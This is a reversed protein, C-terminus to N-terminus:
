GVEVSSHKFDPSHVIAFSSFLFLSMDIYARRDARRQSALQELKERAKPPQWEKRGSLIRPLTSCLALIASTFSFRRSRKYLSLFLNSATIRATCAQRTSPPNRQMFEPSSTFKQILKNCSKNCSLIKCWPCKKM